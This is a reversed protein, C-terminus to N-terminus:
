SESIAIALRAQGVCVCVRQYKPGARGLDFATKDSLGRAAPGSKALLTGGGATRVSRGRAGM